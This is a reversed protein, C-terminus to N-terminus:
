ARIGSQGEKKWLRVALVVAILLAVIAAIGVVTIKM